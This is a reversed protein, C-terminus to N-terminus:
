IRHVCVCILLVGTGGPPSLRKPTGDNMLCFTGDQLFGQVVVGNHNIMESWMPNQANMDGITMCPEQLHPMIEYLHEERLALDPPIYMNVVTLDGVQIGLLQIRDPM